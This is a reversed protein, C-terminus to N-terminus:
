KIKTEIRKTHDVYIPESDFEKNMLSSIKEWIETYKGLLEEDNLKFPMTKISDFYKAYGINLM